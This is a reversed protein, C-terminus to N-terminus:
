QISAKSLVRFSKIAKNEPIDASKVESASAGDNLPPRFIEGCNIDRLVTRLVSSAWATDWDIETVLEHIEVTADRYSLRSPRGYQNSAVQEV